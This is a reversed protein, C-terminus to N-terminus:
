NIISLKGLQAPDSDIQYLYVGPAIRRGDSGVLDWSIAGSESQDGRWIERGALDHVTVQSGIPVWDFTVRANGPRVPNPYAVPALRFPIVDSEGSRVMEGGPGAASPRLRLRQDAGSPAGGLTLRVTEDDERIAAVVPPGGV